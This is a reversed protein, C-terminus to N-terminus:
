ILEMSCNPDLAIGLWLEEWPEDIRGTAAIVLKNEWSGDTAAFNIHADSDYPGDEFFWRTQTWSGDTSEFDITADSDYPGDSYFWRTQTWSGNTAGFDITAESFPLLGMYGATITAGIIMSDTVVIPYLTTTLVLDKPWPPCYIAAM